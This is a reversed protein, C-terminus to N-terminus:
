KVKFSFDPDCQIKLWKGLFDRNGWDPSIQWDPWDAPLILWMRYLWTIHVRLGRRAEGVLGPYM